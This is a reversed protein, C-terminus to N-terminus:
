ISHATREKAIIRASELLFVGHVGRVCKGSKENMFESIVHRDYM